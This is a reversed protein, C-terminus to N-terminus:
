QLVLTCSYFFSISFKCNGFSQVSVSVLELNPHLPVVLEVEDNATPMWMSLRGDTVLTRAAFTLIDNLMAEFGYPKRPAIYGPRSTVLNALYTNILSLSSMSILLFEM